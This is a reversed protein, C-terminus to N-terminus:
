PQRHREMARSISRQEGRNAALKQLISLAARSHSQAWSASLVRTIVWLNPDEEGAWASLIELVTDVQDRQALENLCEVLASRLPYDPSRDLPLLLSTLEGPPLGAGPLLHLGSIVLAPSDGALWAAARAALHVPPIGEELLARALVWRVEPSEDGAMRDLFQWSDDQKKASRRVLGAAAAARLFSDPDGALALLEKEQLPSLAQGLQLLAGAPLENEDLSRIQELAAHVAEPDGIRLAAKIDTLIERLLAKM